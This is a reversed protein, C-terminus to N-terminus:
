KKLTGQIRRRATGEMYDYWFTFTGNSYTAKGALINPGGSGAASYKVWSMIDFEDSDASKRSFTIGFDKLGQWYLENSSYGSRTEPKAEHFFRVTNENVAKLIRSASITAPQSLEATEPATTNAPTVLYKVADLQYVGSYDNELKLNLILTPTAQNQQYDSVSAINFALAYLSDCHLNETHVSFPIRTYVDGAKITGSMSPMDYFSEPLQQYKVPENDLMYKDNYAQIAADSHALTVTVDHDINLSGGVAVSVYANQPETSYPVNFTSVGENAGVMYVQKIYQENVMPDERECSCMGSLMLLLAVNFLISKM